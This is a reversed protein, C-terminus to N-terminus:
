RGPFSAHIAKIADERTLYDFDGVRKDGDYIRWMGNRVQTLFPPTVGRSAAEFSVVQDDPLKGALTVRPREVPGGLAPHNTGDVNIAWGSASVGIAAGFILGYIALASKTFM